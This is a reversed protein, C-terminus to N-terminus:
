SSPRRAVPSGESRAPAGSRCRPARVQGPQDRPERAHEVVGPHREFDDHHVVVARVAGPRQGVVQREVIRPKAHDPAAPSRPRAVATTAPQFAARPSIRPTMSASRCYGGSPRGSRRPGMTASARRRRPRWDTRAPRGRRATSDGDRSITELPRDSSAFSARGRASALSASGLEPYKRIRRRTM